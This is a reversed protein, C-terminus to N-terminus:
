SREQMRMAHEVRALTNAMIHVAHGELEAQALNHSSIM